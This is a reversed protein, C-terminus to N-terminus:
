EKPLSVLHSRALAYLKLLIDRTEYEFRKAAFASMDNVKRVGQWWKFQIDKLIKDITEFLTYSRMNQLCELGM